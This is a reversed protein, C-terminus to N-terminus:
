KVHGCRKWTDYTSYDNFVVYEGARTNVHYNLVKRVIANPYAKLAQYRTDFYNMIWGRWALLVGIFAFVTLCAATIIYGELKSAEPKIEPIYNHHSM